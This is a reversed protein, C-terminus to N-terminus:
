ANVFLEKLDMEKSDTILKMIRMITSPYQDTRTVYLKKIRELDHSGHIIIWNNVGISWEELHYMIDLSTSPSTTM